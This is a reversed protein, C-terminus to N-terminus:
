MSTVTSSDHFATLKRNEVILFFLDIRESLENDLLRRETSFNIETPTEGQSFHALGVSPQWSPPTSLFSKMLTELM